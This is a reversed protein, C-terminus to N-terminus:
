GPPFCFPDGLHDHRCTGGHATTFGLAKAKATFYNCDCGIVDCGDDSYIYHFWPPPIARFVEMRICSLALHFAEPAKWANPTKPFSCDCSLLDGELDLFKATGETPTIDNNVMLVWEYRNARPLIIDRVAQNRAVIYPGVSIGRVNKWRADPGDLEVPGLLGLRDLWPWVRRRCPKPHEFGVILLNEKTFQM